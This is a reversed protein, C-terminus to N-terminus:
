FPVEEDEYSEYFGNKNPQKSYLKTHSKPQEKKETVGNKEKSQLFTLKNAQVKHRSKRQGEQEWQELALEGEVLIPDGKSLYKGAIEATRDFVVVDIFCTSDKTDGNKDKWYKNVAIGFDAVCKNNKTNKVDVDRTLNGILIVKNFNPM